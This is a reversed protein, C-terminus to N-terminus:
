ATKRETSAILIASGTYISEIWLKLRSESFLVRRGLKVHPIFGERAWRLITGPHIRLENAAELATLLDYNSVNHNIDETSM